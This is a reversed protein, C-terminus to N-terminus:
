WDKLIGFYIDVKGWEENEVALILSQKIGEKRADDSIHSQSSHERRLAINLLRNENSSLQWWPDWVPPTNNRDAYLEINELMDVLEKTKDIVTENRGWHIAREFSILFDRAQRAIGPQTFEQTRAIRALYECFGLLFYKNQCCISNWAFKELEIIKGQEFLHNIILLDIYWAGKKILSEKIISFAQLSYNIFELFKDPDLNKIASGLYIPAAVVKLGKELLDKKLDKNNNIYYLTQLAYGAQYELNPNGNKLENLKRELPKYLKEYDIIFFENIIIRDLFQAVPMLLAKIKLENTLPSDNELHKISFELIAVLNEFLERRLSKNENCFLDKPTNYIIVALSQMLWPNLISSSKLDELIANILDAHVIPDKIKALPIIERILSPTKTKERKYAAIIDRALIHLPHKVSPCQSELCLALHLTNKIKDKPTSSLEETASRSNSSLPNETFFSSSVTTNMEVNKYKRYILNFMKELKHQEVKNKEDAELISSLLIEESIPDQLGLISAKIYDNHAEKVKKILFLARGRNLYIDSLKKNIGDVDSFYNYNQILNSEAENLLKIKKSIHKEKEGQLDRTSDITSQIEKSLNDLFRNISEPHLCAFYGGSGSTAVQVRPM